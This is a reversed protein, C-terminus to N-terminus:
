VMSNHRSHDVGVKTDRATGACINAGHAGDSGTISSINDVGVFADIAASAFAGAGVFGDFLGLNILADAFCLSVWEALRQKKYKSIKNIAM